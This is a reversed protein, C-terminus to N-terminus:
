CKMNLGLPWLTSKTILASEYAKAEDKSIGYACVDHVCIVQQGQMARMANHFHTSSSTELSKEVHELYRQQWSRSTIGVYSMGPITEYAERIKPYVFAKIKQEPTGKSALEKLEETTYRPKKYTHRYVIHDGHPKYLTTCFALPVCILTSGGFLRHKSDAFFSVGSPSDPHRMMVVASFGTDIDEYGVFQIGLHLQGQDLSSRLEAELSEADKYNPLLGMACDVDFHPGFFYRLADPNLLESM